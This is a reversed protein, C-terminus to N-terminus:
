GSDLSLCSLGIFIISAPIIRQRVRTEKFFIAGFLIAFFMGTRKVALVYGAITMGFATLQSLSASAGLLGPMIILINFPKFCSIFAEPKRFAIPLYIVSFALCFTTSYFAPSSNTAAIKDGISTISWIFALLLSIRAGKDSALHKIPALIGNVNPTDGLLYVGFTILCIGIVGIFSPIEGLIIFGTFIMFLPTLSLLPFVISLDTIKIAMVYLRVAVLNLSLSLFFGYMFDPYITPLGEFVLYLSTFPFEFFIMLWALHLDHYRNSLYKVFTGQGAYSIASLLALLIWM